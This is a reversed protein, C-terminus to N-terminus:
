TSANSAAKVSAANRARAHDILIRRMTTAAVTFFHARNALQLESRGALRIYLEHVLASPDLTHDPRENRLQAAAIRRLESYVAEFLRSESRRDGARACALLASIDDDPKM